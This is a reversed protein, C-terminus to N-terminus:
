GRMLEEYLESFGLASAEVTATLQTLPHPINTDAEREVLLKALKAIDQVARPPRAYIDIEIFARVLAHLATGGQRTIYNISDANDSARIDDTEQGEPEQPLKGIITELAATKIYRAAYYLPTYDLSNPSYVDVLDMGALRRVAAAKGHVIATMLPTLNPPRDPLNAELNLYYKMDIEAASGMTTYPYSQFEQFFRDIVLNFISNDSNMLSSHLPTENSRESKVIVSPPFNGCFMARIFGRSQTGIIRNLVEPMIRFNNVAVLKRLLDVRGAKAAQVMPHMSLDTVRGLSGRLCYTDLYNRDEDLLTNVIDDRGLQIAAGLINWHGPLLHDNYPSGRQLRLLFDYIGATRMTTVFTRFDGGLRQPQLLLVNTTYNSDYGYQNWEVIIGKPMHIEAIHYSFQVNDMDDHVVKCSDCYQASAASM